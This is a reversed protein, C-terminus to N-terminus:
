SFDEIWAASEDAEMFNKKKKQAFTFSLRSIDIRYLLNNRALSLLAFFMNNPSLYILLPLIYLFLLSPINEKREREGGRERERERERYINRAASGDRMRLSECVFFRVSLSCSINSKSSLCTFTFAVNVNGNVKSGMEEVAAVVAMVVVM